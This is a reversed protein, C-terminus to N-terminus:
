AIESSKCPRRVLDDYGVCYIEILNGRILTIGIGRGFM